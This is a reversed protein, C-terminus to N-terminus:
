LYPLNVTRPGSCPTSPEKSRSKTRRIHNSCTKRRALPLLFDHICHSREKLKSLPCAIDRICPIGAAVCKIYRRSRGSRTERPDKRIPQVLVWPNCCLARWAFRQSNGDRTFHVIDGKSKMLRLGGRGRKRLASRNLDTALSVAHIM